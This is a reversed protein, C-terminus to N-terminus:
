AVKTDDAVYIHLGKWTREIVVPGGENYWSFYVNPHTTGHCLDVGLGSKMIDNM